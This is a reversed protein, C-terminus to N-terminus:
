APDAQSVRDAGAAEANKTERPNAGPATAAIIASQPSQYHEFRGFDTM